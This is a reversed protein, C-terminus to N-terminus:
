DDALLRQVRDQAEDAFAARDEVAETSRLHSDLKAEIRALREAVSSRGDRCMAHLQEVKYPISNSGRRIAVGFVIQTSTADVKKMLVFRQDHPM